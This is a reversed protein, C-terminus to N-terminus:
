FFNFFQRHNKYFYENLYRCTKCSPNIVKCSECIGKKTEIYGDKCM